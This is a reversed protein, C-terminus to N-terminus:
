DDEGVGEVAGENNFLKSLREYASAIEFVEVDDWQLLSQKAYRALAMKQMERMERLEFPDLNYVLRWMVDSIDGEWHTLLKLSDDVVDPDPTEGPEDVWGSNQRVFM